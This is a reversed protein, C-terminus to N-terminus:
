SCVLRVDSSSDISPFSLRASVQGNCLGQVAVESMTATHRGQQMIITADPLRSSQLRTWQGLPTLYM